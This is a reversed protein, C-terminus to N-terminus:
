EPRLGPIVTPHFLRGGSKLRRKGIRVTHNPLSVVRLKISPGFSSLGQTLSLNM